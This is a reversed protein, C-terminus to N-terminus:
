KGVKRIEATPAITQVLRREVLRRTILSAIRKRTTALTETTAHAIEAVADHEDWWIVPIRAFVAYDAPTLTVDTVM